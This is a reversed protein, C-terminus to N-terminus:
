KMQKETYLTEGVQSPPQVVWTISYIAVVDNDHTLLIKRNHLYSIMPM